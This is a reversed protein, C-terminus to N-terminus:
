ARGASAGAAAADRERAREPPLSLALLLAPIPMLAIALMVATLGAGDALVGLAAAVLGGAGIAAGLTIGSSVGIRGPLYEQGLVVTISFNGVTFFGVLALLAYSLAQGSVMLLLLLPTLVAMCGVLVPRRGIRDALRGGVLTGAVGAVLVVTLAANGEAESAGFRRIFYAAVFSQLGFYVGSRWAALGALRAFPGWRDQATGAEATGEGDGEGGATKPGESGPGFGKLRPLEMALAAAVAAPLVLLWAIGAPGFALALPTVLIPALAFGANGGVSFLSMGTARKEGSVHNAYRAAEPHFAGVGVGGLTVALFALAYNPALPALAIGLGGLLVGAPMLLPLSFRDALHGFLPQILSSGVTVALVLAGAAAYTYGRDQILFPLMAPVAGQCMDSCLHGASLAALGRRDIARGSEPAEATASV